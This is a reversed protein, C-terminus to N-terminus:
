SRWRDAEEVTVMHAGHCLSCEIVCDTITGSMDRRYGLM